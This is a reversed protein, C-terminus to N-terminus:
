CQMRCSLPFELGSGNIARLVGSRRWWRYSDHTRDSTGSLFAVHGSRLPVLLAQQHIGATKLVIVDREGM